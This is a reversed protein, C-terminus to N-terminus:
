RRAILHTPGATSADGPAGSNHRWHLALARGEDRSRTSFRVRAAVIQARREQASQVRRSPPIFTVIVDSSSCVRASEFDFEVGWSFCTRQPCVFSRASGKLPFLIVLEMPTMPSQIFEEVSLISTFRRVSM